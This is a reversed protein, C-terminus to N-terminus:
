REKLERNAAHNNSAENDAYVAQVFAPANNSFVQYVNGLSMMAMDVYDIGTITYEDGKIKGIKFKKAGVKMIDKSFIGNSHAINSKDKSSPKGKADSYYFYFSNGNHEIVTVHYEEKNELSDIVLIDGAKAKKKEIAKPKAENIKSKTEFERMAESLPKTEM